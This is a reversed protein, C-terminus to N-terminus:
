LTNDVKQGGKLILIVVNTEAIIHREGNLLVRHNM